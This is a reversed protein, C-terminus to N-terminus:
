RSAGMRKQNPLVGSDVTAGTRSIVQFHMSDKTIEVLMFSMDADYAAAVQHPV